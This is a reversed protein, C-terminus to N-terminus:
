VVGDKGVISATVVGPGFAVTSDLAKRLPESDHLASAVDSNGQSLALRVQEFIQAIMFDASHSMDDVMSSVRSDLSVVSLVVTPVLMLLLALLALRARLHM